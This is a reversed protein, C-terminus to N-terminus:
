PHGGGHDGGGHDEGGHGGAWGGHGGEAHPAEGRNAHFNAAAPRAAAPRNWGNREWGGHGWREHRAYYPGHEVEGGEFFFDADPYENSYSYCCGNVPGGAAGPYPDYYCASTSLLVASAALFKVAAGFTVKRM